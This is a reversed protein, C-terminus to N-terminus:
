RRGALETAAAGRGGAWVSGEWGGGCWAGTGVPVAVSTATTAASTGGGGGRVRRGVSPPVVEGAGCTWRRAGRRGGSRRLRRQPHRSPRAQRASQRRGARAAWCRPRHPGGAAAATVVSAAAAAAAMSVATVSPSRDQVSDGRRGSGRSPRVEGAGRVLGEGGLRRGAPGANGGAAAVM